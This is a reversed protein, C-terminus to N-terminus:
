FLDCFHKESNNNNIDFMFKACENKYRDELCLLKLKNFLPQSHARQSEFTILRVAHKMSKKLPDLVSEYAGGWNIIGYTSHPQIFANYICSLVDKSVFHRLRALIGVGKSIKMTTEQIHTKWSLKNDLLVGLYKASQAEALKENNICISVKQNVRKNKPSVILYYSKKTNLSLKNAILWDSINDLLANVDSESTELNEQSMFLSTDDAFLHFDLKNSSNPLDNIYLLFLLPGLVSGQPVGYSVDLSESLVGGVFVSQKRDKLYSHFWELAAGRVGYYELTHM